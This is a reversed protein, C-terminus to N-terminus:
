RRRRDRSARRGRAPRSAGEAQQRPGAGPEVALAELHLQRPERQRREEGAEIAAAASSWGRARGGARRSPRRRGADDEADPRDRDVVDGSGASAVHIASRLAAVVCVWALTTMADGSPPTCRCLAATAAAAIRAIAPADVSPRPLKRKAAAARTGASVGNKGTAQCWPAGAMEAPRSDACRTWSATRSARCASSAPRRSIACRPGASIPTSRTRSPM